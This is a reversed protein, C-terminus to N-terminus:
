MPIELMTLTYGPYTLSNISSSSVAPLQVIAQLNDASYRFVRTTGQLNLGTLALAVKADHPELNNILVTLKSTQKNIAAYASVKRRKNSRARVGLSGFSSFQGDYNGFMRFAWYISSSADVSPFFTALSVKQEAFVGLLEAQAIAGSIDKGGGLNYETIALGVGPATSDIISKVRPIFKPIGTPATVPDMFGCTTCKYKPDWMIRVAEIREKQSKPDTNDNFGIVYAHIDVMDVLRVGHANRYAEMQELYYQMFPKNGHAM